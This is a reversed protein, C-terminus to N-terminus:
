GSFRGVASRVGDSVFVSVVGSDVGAATVSCSCDFLMLGAAFGETLTGSAGKGVGASTARLGVPLRAIYVAGVSGSVLFDATARGSTAKGAMSIAEVSKGAGELRGTGSDLGVFEFVL